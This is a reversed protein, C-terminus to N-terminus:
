QQSGEDHEIVAPLKTHPQIWREIYDPLGIGLYRLAGLVLLLAAAEDLNGLIPLNDPLLDIGFTPNLVYVAGLILAVWALTRGWRPQAAPLVTGEVLQPADEYDELDSV